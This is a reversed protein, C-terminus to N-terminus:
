SPTQEKLSNAEANGLVHRNFADLAAVFIIRLVIFHFLSWRPSMHLIGYEAMLWNIPTLLLIAVVRWLWRVKLMVLTVFVLSLLLIYATSFAVHDRSQDTFWGIEYRYAQLLAALLFVASAQILLNTCFLVAFRLGTTVRTRLRKYVFKALSFWALLGIGTIWFRWWYHEYIQLRVFLAELGVILGALVTSGKWGFDFAAALVGAVPISFADSVIAGVISDHFEDKLVHPHYQYASFLVLVPYEALYTWGSLFAYLAILNRRDQVRWLTYLFAVVAMVTIAGYWWASTM